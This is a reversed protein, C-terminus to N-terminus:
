CWSSCCVKAAISRRARCAFLEVDVSLHAYTMGAGELLADVQNLMDQVACADRSFSRLGLAGAPGGAISLGRGSELILFELSWAM